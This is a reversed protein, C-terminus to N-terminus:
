SRGARDGESDPQADVDLLGAASMAEVAEVVARVVVDAEVGDASGQAVSVLEALTHLRDLEVWVGATVGQLRHLQDEGRGLVLISAGCRRDLVDTRRRLRTEAGVTM